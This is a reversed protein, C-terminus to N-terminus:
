PHGEQHPHHPNLAAVVADLLAEASRDHAVAHVPLGAARADTATGPGICAM